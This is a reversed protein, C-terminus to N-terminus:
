SFRCEKQGGCVSLDTVGQKNCKPPWASIVSEKQTINESPIDFIEIVILIYEDLFDHALMQTEKPATLIKNHHVEKTPM